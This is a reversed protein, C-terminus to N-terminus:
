NKYLLLCEAFESFSKNVVYMLQFRQERDLLVVRDNQSVDFCIPNGKNDSGLIWYNKASNDLNLRSYYDSINFFKNGYSIWGFDLFPAADRPFGKKLFSKTVESLPAKEIESYDFEIWKDFENVQWLAKFETATM